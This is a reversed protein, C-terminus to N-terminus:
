IFLSYEPVEWALASAGLVDRERDDLESILLKVKNQMNGFVHQEFSDNAPDFLWRGARSIGGTLIIAEPNVLSAYNALAIGLQYGTRRYVEIALADGQECLEAIIRPSLREADRMLSPQSNEALLEQATRVIGAASVYAELCGDHGCSCRRGRDEICTHGLEGAYGGHGQHINGNSFFCSGLGVGISVVIFDKMGHASGYMKEGLASANADNDMIVSLGIRDRMIAALPIVGKWPLNTANEIHGTTGVANPCSIGISRISLLGGNEEALEVLEDALHTIYQNVDRYDTTKFSRSALINGRIDVIAYTTHENSIDVGIVRSKIKPAKM